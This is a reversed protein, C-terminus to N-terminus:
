LWVVVISLVECALKGTVDFAAQDGFGRNAASAVRDALTSPSPMMDPDMVLKLTTGLM